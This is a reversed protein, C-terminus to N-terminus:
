KKVRRYEHHRLRQKQKHRVNCGGDDLTMTIEHVVKSRFQLTHAKLLLIHSESVIKELLNFTDAKYYFIAM